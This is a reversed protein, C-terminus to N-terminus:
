RPLNVIKEPTGPAGSWSSLSDLWRVWIEV